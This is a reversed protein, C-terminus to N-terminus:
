HVMYTYSNIFIRHNVDCALYLCITKSLNKILSRKQLAYVNEQMISSISLGSRLILMQNIWFCLLKAMIWIFIM